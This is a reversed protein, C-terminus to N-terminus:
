FKKELRPWVTSKASFDTQITGFTQPTPWTLLDLPTCSGNLRTVLVSMPAIAWPLPKLGATPSDSRPYRDSYILRRYRDPRIYQEIAEYREGDTIELHRLELQPAQNVREWAQRIQAELDTQTSSDTDEPCSGQPEPNEQHSSQAFTAAVSITTLEPFPHVSEETLRLPRLVLVPLSLSMILLLGLTERMHM